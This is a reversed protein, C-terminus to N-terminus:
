TILFDSSMDVLNRLFCNKFDLFFVSTNYIYLFFPIKLTCKKHKKIYKKSKNKLVNKFFKRPMLFGTRIIMLISPPFESQEWRKITPECLVVSQGGWCLWGVWSRCAHLTKASLRPSSFFFRTERFDRSSRVFPARRISKSRFFFLIRDKKKVNRRVRM